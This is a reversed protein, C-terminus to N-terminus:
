SCAIYTTSIQGNSELNSSNKSNRSSRARVGDGSDELGGGVTGTAVIHSFQDQDGGTEQYNSWSGKVNTKV